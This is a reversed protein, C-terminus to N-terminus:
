SKESEKKKLQTTIGGQKTHSLRATRKKKKKQGGGTRKQQQVRRGKEQGSVQKGKRAPFKNDRKEKRAVGV